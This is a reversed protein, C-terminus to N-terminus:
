SFMPEGEILEQILAERLDDVVVRAPLCSHIQWPVPTKLNWGVEPGNEGSKVEVYMAAKWGKSFDAVENNEVCNWAPEITFTDRANTGILLAHRVVACEFDGIRVFGLCRTAYPAGLSVDASGSEVMKREAVNSWVHTVGVEYMPDDTLFNRETKSIELTM